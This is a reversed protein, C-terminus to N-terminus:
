LLRKFSTRFMSLASCSACPVAPHIQLILLEPVLVWTM